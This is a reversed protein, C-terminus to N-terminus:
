LCIRKHALGVCLREGPEDFGAHRVCRIVGWKTGGAITFSVTWGQGQINTCVTNTMWVTYINNTGCPPLPGGQPWDPQPTDLGMPTTFATLRQGAALRQARRAAALEAQAAEEEPTIPGLAATSSYANYYEAISNQTNLGFPSGTMRRFRNSGSFVALEDIQGGAVQQGDPGSGVVLSTSPILQAPVSPLGAGSAVATDNIFIATNTESYGLAVLVWNGAQFAAAATLCPTPDEGCVLSLTGGDPAVVLSYWSASAGGAASVLTLLKAPHGPGVGSDFAPRYWFRIAGATGDVLARSSIAMPILWPTVM